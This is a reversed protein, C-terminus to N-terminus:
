QKAAPPKDPMRFESDDIPTNAVIEDLALQLVPKGQVRQELSYPMMVGNVARFDRPFSEFDFDHGMEKRQGSSKV